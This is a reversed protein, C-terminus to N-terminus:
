VLHELEYNQTKQRCFVEGWWRTTLWLPILQYPHSGFMQAPSSLKYCQSSTTVPPSREAAHSVVCTVKLWIAGQQVKSYTLRTPPPSTNKLKPVNGSSYLSPWLVKQIMTCKSSSLCQFLSEGLMIQVLHLGTCAKPCIWWYKFVNHWEMRYEGESRM